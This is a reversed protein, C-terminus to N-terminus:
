YRGGEGIKAKYLLCGPVAKALKANFWDLTGTKKKGGDPDNFHVDKGNVGTLVIVHGPGFWYGASWIPGHIRLQHEISAATSAASLPIPKLGENQALESFEQPLIGSTNSREWVKPVGLRPGPFHFYAVMCAAAYWCEYPRHQAVLPVDLQIAV